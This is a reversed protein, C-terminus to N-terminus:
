LDEPDNLEAPINLQYRANGDLRGEAIAIARRALDLRAVPAGDQDLLAYATLHAQALAANSTNSPASFHADGQLRIPLPLAIQGLRGTDADLDFERMVFWALGSGDPPRVFFDLKGADASFSFDGSADDIATRASRPAVSSDGLSRDLLDPNPIPISPEVGVIAGLAGTNNWRLVATGSVQLVREVAVVRGAQFRPEAPVDWEASSLRMSETEAFSLEPLVQVKYSGPVLSVAFRGERDTEAQVSYTAFVGPPAALVRTATLTVTGRVAEITDGTRVQGEVTVPTPLRLLPEVSGSGPELLELARREFFVTPAIVGKPPSIRVLENGRRDPDRSGSIAVPSYSLQAPYSSKADIPITVRNSIPSGNPELMDLQWGGLSQERPFRVELNLSAASALDLLLNVNSPFIAQELLLQPPLSCRARHEPTAAADFSVPYPEIYIDYFGTPVILNSVYSTGPIPIPNDWQTTDVQAEYQEVDLGLSRVSPRLTVRAPITGDEATLVPTGVPPTFMLVGCADPAKIRIALRTAAFNLDRIGGEAPVDIAQFHPKGALAGARLTPTLEFLLGSFSGAPAVCSGSRCVGAGCDDDSTCENVARTRERDALATVNCGSAGLLVFALATSQRRKM